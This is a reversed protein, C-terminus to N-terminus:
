TKKKNQQEYRKKTKQERLICSTRFIITREAYTVRFCPFVFARKGKSVKHQTEKTQSFSLSSCKLICNTTPDESNQTAGFCSSISYSSNNLKIEQQICITRANFYSKTRRARILASFFSVCVIFPFSLTIVVTRELFLTSNM